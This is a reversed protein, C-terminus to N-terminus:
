QSSPIKQPRGRDCKACGAGRRRPQQAGGRLARLSLGSALDQDRDELSTSCVAQVDDHREELGPVVLQPRADSDCLRALRVAAEIEIAPKRQMRSQLWELGHPVAALQR